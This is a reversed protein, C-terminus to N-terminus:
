DGLGNKIVELGADVEMAQNQTLDGIFERGFAYALTILVAAQAIDTDSIDREDAPPKWVERVHDRLKAARELHNM